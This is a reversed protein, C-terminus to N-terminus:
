KKIKQNYAFCQHGCNKNWQISLGSYLFRGFDQTFIDRWLMYWGDQEAADKWGNARGHRCHVRQFRYYVWASAIELCGKIRGGRREATPGPLVVNIKKVDPDNQSLWNRASRAMSFTKHMDVSHIEV